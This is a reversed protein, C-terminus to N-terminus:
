RLNVVVFSQRGVLRMVPLDGLLLQLGAVVPLGGGVAGVVSAM